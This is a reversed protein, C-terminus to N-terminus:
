SPTRRRTHVTRQVGKARPRGSSRRVTRPMESRMFAHLRRTLKEPDRLECQWVVITKWDLKRLELLSRADRRKNARIKPEWYELRSKPLAGKACGHGHWFCGHVFIAKRHRPLVIDPRGPLAKSHIRFRFGLRHLISRVALEPGTSATRVSRMIATRQEATRTDVM